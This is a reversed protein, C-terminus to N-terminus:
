RMTMADRRVYVACDASRCDFLREWSADLLAANQPGVAAIRVNNQSLFRTLERGDAHLPVARVPFRLDPPWLLGPFEFDLDFAITENSGVESWMQPYDIPQGHPGVAVRRQADTMSLYATLEPGDGTLGPWAYIVQSASVALLALTAFKTFRPTVQTVALAILVAPFALVYRPISPDAVVLCALVMAVLSASRRRVLAFIGLPLSLLLLVGLGGLKMDFVPNTGIALWSVSLRELLGGTAHPLASGAALLDNMTRDGPLLVPGLKVAVPWVPNGHRMLMQAYMDAGFAICALGALLIGGFQRARIARFAALAGIFAVALPAAPKSGLFIGLAIGGTLLSSVRPEVLLLFYLSGLLAAATGVDVYDSPLQLFVAPVTLWAAGALMSLGRTAGLKRAIAATLVAGVVGYPIQALDVLRDDPLMARLWIVGLEINHPYTTIYRLDEPVGTFGHNQLVFNVFPLHYGFSDWQWVPLLRAVLASIFVVGVGLLLAPKGESWAVRLVGSSPVSRVFTLATLLVLLALLTAGSLLSFTGLAGVSFHVLAMSFVATAALRDVREVFVLGSLRSACLVLMPLAVPLAGWALLENM